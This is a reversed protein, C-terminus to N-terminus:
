RSTFSSPNVGCNVSDNTRSMAPLPLAERFACRPVGQEVLRPFAQDVFRTRGIHVERRLSVKIPRARPAAGRFPAFPAIIRFSFEIREFFDFLFAQLSKLATTAALTLILRSELSLTM